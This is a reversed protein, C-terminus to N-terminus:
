LHELLQYFQLIFLSEKFSNIIKMASLAPFILLATILLSGVLNM